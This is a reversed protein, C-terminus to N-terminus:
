ATQHNNNNNKKRKRENEGAKWKRKPKSPFAKCTESKAHAGFMEAWVRTASTLTRIVKQRSGSGGNSHKSQFFFGVKAVATELTYPFFCFVFHLQTESRKKNGRASRPLRTTEKHLCYLSCVHLHCHHSHRESVIMLFNCKTEGRPIKRKRKKEKKNM